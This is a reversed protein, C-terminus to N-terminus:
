VARAEIAAPEKSAEILGHLDHTDLLTRSCHPLRVPQLVGHAVLEDLKRVSVGLYLAAGRRDLLRRRQRDSGIVAQDM